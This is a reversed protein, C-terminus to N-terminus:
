WVALRPFIMAYNNTPLDLQLIGYTSSDIRNELTDRDSVFYLYAMPLPERVISLTESVRNGEIERM